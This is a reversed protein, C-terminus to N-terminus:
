CCLPFYSNGNNIAKSYLFFILITFEKFCGLRSINGFYFTINFNVCLNDRFIFDDATDGLKIM